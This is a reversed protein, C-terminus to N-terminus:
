PKASRSAPLAQGQRRLQARIDAEPQLKSSGDVQVAIRSPAGGREVSEPAVMIIISGDSVMEHGPFYIWPVSTTRDELSVFELHQVPVDALSDPFM